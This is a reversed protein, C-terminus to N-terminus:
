AAAILEALRRVSAESVRAHVLMAHSYVRLTDSPITTLATKWHALMMEKATLEVLVDQALLDWTRTIPDESAEATPHFLAVGEQYLAHEMVLLQTALQFDEDLEKQLTSAATIDSLTQLRHTRKALRPLLAAWRSPLLELYDGLLSKELYTLAKEM